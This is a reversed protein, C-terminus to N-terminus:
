GAERHRRSEGRRKMEGRPPAAVRGRKMGGRPTAAIRGRPSEADDRGAAAGRGAGENRREGGDIRPVEDTRGRLAPDNARRSGDTVPGAGNAELPVRRAHEVVRANQQILERRHQRSMRADRHPELAVRVRAARERAVPRRSARVAAARAVKTGGAARHRKGFPARRGDRRVEGRRAHGRVADLGDPHRAASSQHVVRLSAHLMQIPPHLHM